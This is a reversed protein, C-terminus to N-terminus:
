KGRASSFNFNIHDKRIDRPIVLTFQHYNDPNSKRVQDEILLNCYITSTDLKSKIYSITLWEKMVITIEYTYRTEKASKFYM